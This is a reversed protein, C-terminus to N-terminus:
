KTILLYQTQNEARLSTFKTAQGRIGCLHYGYSNRKCCKAIEEEGYHKTVYPIFM